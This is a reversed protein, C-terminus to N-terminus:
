QRTKESAPKESAPKESAAKESDVVSDSEKDKDSGVQFIANEVFM